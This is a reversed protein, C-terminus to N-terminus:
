NVLELTQEILKSGHMRSVEQSLDFVFDDIETPLEGLKRCEYTAGELFIIEGSHNYLTKICKFVQGVQFNAVISANAREFPETLQLAKPLITSAVFGSGILGRMSVASAGFVSGIADFINPDYKALENVNEMKIYPAKSNNELINLLKEESIGLRKAIEATNM